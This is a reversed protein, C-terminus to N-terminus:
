YSVKYMFVSKPRSVTPSQPEDSLPISLDNNFESNTDADIRLSQDNTGITTPKHHHDTNNSQLAAIDSDLTFICVIISTVYCRYVYMYMRLYVRVKVSHLCPWSQTILISFSLSLSSNIPEVGEM